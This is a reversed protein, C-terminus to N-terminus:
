RGGKMFESMMCIGDAGAEVCLHLNDPHIGGLAYVEMFPLKGDHTTECVERLYSLGRPELGEKCKTEFIHSATIYSAGMGRATLAEEVSHTSVGITKFYQRDSLSLKMFDRMTLHIHPYNLRKAVSVFTHLICKVGGYYCIKLVEYALAAYQEESLDKERLIILDVEKSAVVRNIAALLSAPDGGALNMNTICITLFKRGEGKNRYM